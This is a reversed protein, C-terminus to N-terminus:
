NSSTSAQRPILDLTGLDLAESTQNKPVIVERRISGIEPAPDGRQRPSVSSPKSDLLKIELEYTGAPIDQLRFAGTSDCFTGFNRISRRAKDWKNMAAIFSANSSFDHRRPNPGPEDALKLRLNVPVRQWDISATADTLVATGIVPTGSGGLIVHTTNGAKVVVPTEHSEFGVPFEGDLIRQRYVSIEGPPVKEFLFKGTSDTKTELNVSMLWVRRGQEDYRSVQGFAGVRENAAPKSDLVVSGKIRGWPQLAITDGSALMTLPVQVYGQDHVVVLGQPDFAAPLSFKGASDTRALYPTTNIGKEVHAPGKITV